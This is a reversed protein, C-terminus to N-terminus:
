SAAYKTDEASRCFSNQIAQNVEVGPAAKMEERHHVGAQQPAGAHNGREDPNLEPAYPPLNDGHGEAVKSAINRL